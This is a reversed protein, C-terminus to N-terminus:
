FDAPSTSRERVTVYVGRLGLALIGLGILVVVFRVVSGLVPVPLHGLIGVVVIGVALAGWRNDRDALELLLSGVVYRGYVSAIWLLVVFMALGAIAIPLGIVTIAVIVLAIPCAILAAVGAVAIRFPTETVAEVASRSFDPFAALLIVGLLADALLLYITAIPGLVPLSPVLALESSERIQGEVRGGENELNGQYNLNGTVHATPALRVSEAIVNADGRVTGALEVNGGVAGFTGRVLADGDLTVSGGYALASGGVTGGIRVSGGYIRVRGTVTGGETIVVGGGYAELNGEVTGRIVVTGAIATVDGRVTENPGVVVTGGVRVGSGDGDAQTAAATSAGAAPSTAAVIPGAVTLATLLVAIAVALVRQM